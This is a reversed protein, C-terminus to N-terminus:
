PLTPLFATPCSAGNGVNQWGTWGTPSGSPHYDNRYWTRNDNGLVCIGLVNNRSDVIGAFIGSRGIGGMSTWNSVGGSSLNTWQHYIRFDTGTLFLHAQNLYPQVLTVGYECIFGGLKGGFGRITCNSLSATADVNADVQLPLEGASSQLQSTLAFSGDADSLVLDSNAASSESEVTTTQETDRNDTSPSEPADMCALLCLPFIFLSVMYTTRMPNEKNFTASTFVFKADRLNGRAKITRVEGDAACLPRLLDEVFPEPGYESNPWTNLHQHENGKHGDNYILFM